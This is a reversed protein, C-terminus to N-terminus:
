VSMQLLVLKGGVAVAGSAKLFERRSVGKSLKNPKDLM